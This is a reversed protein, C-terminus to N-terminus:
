AAHEIIFHMRAWGFLKAWRHPKRIERENWIVIARGVDFRQM